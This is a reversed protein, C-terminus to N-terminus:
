FGGFSYKSLDNYVFEENYGGAKKKKKLDKIINIEANPKYYPLKIERIIKTEYINNVEVDMNNDDVNLNTYNPAYLIKPSYKKRENIIQNLEDHYKTKNIDHLPDFNKNLILEKINKSLYEEIIKEIGELYENYENENNFNEKRKYSYEEFIKQRIKYDKEYLIQDQPKNFYDNSSQPKPDKCLKCYYKSNKESFLKGYCIDCLRHLCYKSYFINSTLQSSCNVCTKIGKEYEKYNPINM